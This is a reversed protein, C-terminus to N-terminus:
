LKGEREEMWEEYSIEYRYKNLWLRYDKQKTHESMLFKSNKHFPKWYWNISRVLPNVLVISMFILIGITFFTNIIPILGMIFSILIQKLTIPKKLAGKLNYAEMGVFFKPGLTWVVLLSITYSWLFIISIM